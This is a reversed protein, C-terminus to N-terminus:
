RLKKRGRHFHGIRRGAQRVSCSPKLNGSEGSMTRLGAARKSRGSLLNTQRGSPPLFESHVAQSLEAPGLERQRMTGALRGKPVVTGDVRHATSPRRVVRDDRQQSQVQQAVRLVQRLRKSEVIAGQDVESLKNYRFHPLARGGVRIQVEEDSSRPRFAAPTTRTKRGPTRGCLSSVAPTQGFSGSSRGSFVPFSLWMRKLLKISLPKNPPCCGPCARLDHANSHRTTTSQKRVVTRWTV